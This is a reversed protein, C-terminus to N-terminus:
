RRDFILLTVTDEEEEVTLGIHILAGGRRAEGSQDSSKKPAIKNREKERKRQQAGNARIYNRIRPVMLTVPGYANRSWGVSRCLAKYLRTCAVLFALFGNSVIEKLDLNVYQKISKVIQHSQNQSQKSKASATQM